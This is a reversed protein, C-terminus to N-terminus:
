QGVRKGGEAARNDAIDHQLAKAALRAAGRPRCAGESGGNEDKVPEIHVMAWARSGDPPQVEGEVGRIAVGARLVGAM